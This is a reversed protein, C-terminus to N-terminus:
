PGAEHKQNPSLQVIPSRMSSAERLSNKRKPEPLGFPKRASFLLKNPLHETTRLTCTKRVICGLHRM